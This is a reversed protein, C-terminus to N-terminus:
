QGQFRGTYPDDVTFGVVYKCVINDHNGYNCNFTLHFRTLHKDHKLWKKNTEASHSSLDFSMISIVQWGVSAVNGHIM